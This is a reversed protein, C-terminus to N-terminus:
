VRFYNKWTLCNSFFIYLFCFNLFFNFSIFISLRNKPKQTFLFLLACKLASSKCLFYNSALECYSYLWFATSVKTGLLVYLQTINLSILGVIEWQRRMLFYKLFDIKLSFLLLLFLCYFYFISYQTGFLMTNAIKEVFTERKHFVFNLCKLQKYVLNRKGYIIMTELYVFNVFIENWLFPFNRPIYLLSYRVLM